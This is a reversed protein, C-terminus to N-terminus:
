RAAAPRRRDRPRVHQDDRAAAAAELVEPAEVVLRQHAGHRGGVDRQDRRDAVLGVPRQDVKGGVARASASPRPRSPPAPAPRGRPSAPWGPARSRAQVGRLKSRLRCASRAAARASGEGSWNSASGRRRKSSAALRSPRASVTAVSRLRARSPAVPQRRCRQRAADALRAPSRGRSKGRGSRATPCRARAAPGIQACRLRPQRRLRDRPAVAPCGLCQVGQLRPSWAIPKRSSRSRALSVWASRSSAVSLSDSSAM